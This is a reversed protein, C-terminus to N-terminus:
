QPSISCHLSAWLTGVVGRDSVGVPASSQENDGCSHKKGAAQIALHNSQRRCKRSYTTPIM